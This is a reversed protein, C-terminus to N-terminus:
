CVSPCSEFRWFISCSNVDALKASHTIRQGSHVFIILVGFGVGSDMKSGDTYIEIDPNPLPTGTFNKTVIKHKEAIDMKSMLGCSIELKKEMESFYGVPKSFRDQGQWDRKFQNRTRFHKLIADEEIRLLIPPIGLM